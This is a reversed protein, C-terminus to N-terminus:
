IVRMTMWNCFHCSIEWEQDWMWHMVDVALITSITFNCSFLILYQTSCLKTTYKPSLYISIIDLWTSQISPSSSVRITVVVPHPQSALQISLYIPLYVLWTLRPACLCTHPGFLSFRIKDCPSLLQSTPKTFSMTHIIAAKRTSWCLLPEPVICLKVWPKGGLGDLWKLWTTLIIESKKEM